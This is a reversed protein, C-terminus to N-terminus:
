ITIKFYLLFPLQQKGQYLTQVGRVEWSTVAVQFCVVIWECVSQIGPDPDPALIYVFM